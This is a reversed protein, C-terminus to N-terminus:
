KIKALIPYTVGERDTQMKEYNVKVGDDLDMTLQENAMHDLIEDYDKIEALQKQLHDKRKELRAARRKDSLNELNMDIARLETEYKSQVKHLYLLVRGETDKTWRHIYVFAKFGNEKGSDFLWYIPRKQYTKCHDKYFNKLFYNRLKEKPTAGRTGLADTLFELNTEFNERGFAKKLWACIFSPLDDDFYEEDTIPVVNDDDPIFTQYKGADWEGGAYALGPTDLSYRGFLCGVAYSLLSKMIDEKTLVYNSGQLDDPVDDKSDFVQHVTVDKPAVDPTLEDKLGYIDIFIRNLEEENEQLIDFRDECVAKFQEYREALTPQKATILGAMDLASSALLPHTQFDWSTEFFDWDAKSIAINHNVVSLIQNTDSSKKIPLKGVNGVEFNLTPSLITMFVTSVKSNMFAMFNLLQNHNSDFSHLFPSADGPIIGCPQYRVSFKGSSIKNWSVVEDFYRDESPIIARGTTKIANGNNEWNVVDIINGYWRRFMGGSNFLFWKKFSNKSEKTLEFNTKIASVEFWKRIFKESNGTQLGRRSDMYDSLRPYNFAVVAQSSVWYAIPEGPIKAFSEQQATYRSDGTLFLKEKAQQSTPKVLRCYTGKFAPVKLQLVVFATTQVVEGGIEDFARPGLHAMNVITKQLVKERLKEYSSLFMWAHQTIMAQFGNPKVFANCREMFMAFLDSKSDPFKKKAFQNMDANFSGSGLYPPNTVCVWYKQSLLKAQRVLKPMREAVEQLWGSLFLNNCGEDLLQQMYDLLGDYNGPEVQLLSGYNKADRFTDILEDALNVFQDELSMQEAEVQGRMDSWKTLGNSDEIACVQPRLDRSFLRRDYQRAKMMLSFYTLQYARDDIDLGYLNHALISQAAEREMYGQSQYIDMLVDFAYVLIHGSGSCPDLVTLDEPQLRAYDVRLAALEQAVDAEQQAEPVYYKWKAQLEDDPHGALWLRGLSNEVMYRVIWDPTFLQTAAPINEKSVKVNKKLKAFVEDKWESNYYQYLWGIIQVQDQFDEEPIDHILHSVVGNPDIYSFQLFYDSVDDDGEFFDPMWQGIEHCRKLLLFNFLADNQNNDKWDLIQQEEAPTFELDSEFPTSVLDPDVKDLVDSSLVRMHDPFYDNVEMYRIAILRNFWTSAMTEILDQYATGYDRERDQLLRETLKKRTRVATGEVTLPTATGMDFYQIESTSAPLPELIATPTIGLLGARQRMNEQLTVRAWTAFNRIATKNM